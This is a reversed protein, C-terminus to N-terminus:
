GTPRGRRSRVAVAEEALELLEGGLGIVPEVRDFFLKGAEPGALFVGGGLFGGFFAVVAALVPTLESRAFPHEYDHGYAARDRGHNDSM